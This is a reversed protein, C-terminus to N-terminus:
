NIRIINNKFIINRLNFHNFNDGIPAWQIQGDSVQDFVIKAPAAPNDMEGVLQLGVNFEYGNDNFTHCAGGAKSHKELVLVKM